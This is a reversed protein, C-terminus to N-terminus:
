LRCVHSEYRRNSICFLQQQAVVTAAFMKATIYHAQTVLVSAWWHRRMAAIPSYYLFWIYRSCQSRIRQYHPLIDSALWHEKKWWHFHLNVRRPLRVLGSVPLRRETLIFFMSAFSLSPIIPLSLFGSFRDPILRNQREIQRSWFVQVQAKRKAIQILLWSRHTRIQHSVWGRMPWCGSCWYVKRISARVNHSSSRARSHAGIWRM